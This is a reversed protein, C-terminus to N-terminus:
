RIPVLSSCGCKTTIIHTGIAFVELSLNIIKVDLLKTFNICELIWERSVFISRGNYCSPDNIKITCSSM